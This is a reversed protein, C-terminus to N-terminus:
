LPRDLVKYPMVVGTTYNWDITVQTESVVISGTYTTGNLTIILPYSGVALRVGGINSVAMPVDPTNSCVKPERVNLFDVKYGVVGNVTPRNYQYQLVGRSCYTNTTIASLNFVVTDGGNVNRGASFSLTIKDGTLPVYTTTDAPTKVTDVPPIIPDAPDVKIAIRSPVEGAKGATVVYIGVKNFVIRAVNAKTGISTNIPTITWKVSDTNTAGTYVFTDLEGVKVELKEAKIKSASIVPQMDKNCGQIIFFALIAALMTFTLKKM